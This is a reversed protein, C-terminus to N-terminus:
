SGQSSPPYISPFYPQEQVPEPSATKSFSSIMTSLSALSEFFNVMFGRVILEYVALAVHGQLGDNENGGLRQWGDDRGEHQYEICRFVDARFRDILASPMSFLMAVLTAMNTMDDSPLSNMLQHGVGERLYDFVAFGQFAPFPTIKFQTHKISWSEAMFRDKLDALDGASMSQVSYPDFNTM